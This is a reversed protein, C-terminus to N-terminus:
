KFDGQKQICDQWQKLWIFWKYELEETLTLYFSDKLFSVNDPIHSLKRFFICFDAKSKVMLNFLENTLPEDYKELGLKKAWM